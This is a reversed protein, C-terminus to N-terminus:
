RDLLRESNTVEECDAIEAEDDYYEPLEDWGYPDGQERAKNWVELCTALNYEYDDPMEVEVTEYYHYTHIMEVRYKKAMEGGEPLEQGYIQLSSM